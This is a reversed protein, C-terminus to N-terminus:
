DIKYLRKGYRGITLGQIIISFAMVIFVMVVFQNRPLPDDLSLAMAISLGGRLGGWTMLNIMKLNVLPLQKKMFLWPFLLSSYRAILSLPIAIVGAWFYGPQFELTVLELGILVFLVANLLNDILKWFKEVYEATENSMAQKRATNGTILGAVVMSLAGSVGIGSAIAYGGMAIALTILVETQYNDIRKMLRLGLRGMIWGLVLGGGAERLLHVFVELGVHEGVGFEVTQILLTFIVVGIGDNFLSEGVINIEVEKPIDSQSLISLVAIPDTPSVIAGFVLCYLLPMNIQFVKFLFFLGGGIMLTSVVVGAFAFVTISSLNKKLLELDTHFAGAFLMFCLMVNLLVHSFDINGIFSREWAILSPFFRGTVIILISYILSIVTLGIADPLKLFRVNFYSFLATFAVLVTVVTFIDM